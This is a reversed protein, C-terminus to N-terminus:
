LLYQKNLININSILNLILIMFNQIDSFELADIKLLEEKEHHKELESVKSWNYEPNIWYLLREVMIQGLEKDEM